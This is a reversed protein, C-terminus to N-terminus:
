AQAQEGGKITLHFVDILRPELSEGDKKLVNGAEDKVDKGNEDTVNEDIVSVKDVAIVYGTLGKATVRFRIFEKYDEIRAAGGVENNHGNFVFCVGLYWGFWVCCLVAGVGGALLAPWVGYWSQWFRPQLFPSSLGDAPATLYPLALMLGGFVLWALPLGLRSNRKLLYEGVLTALGVLLIAAVWTGWAGRRILVFPVAIQLLLHWLGIVLKGLWGFRPAAHLLEAGVKFPLLLLLIITGLLVVTFVIDSILLAALNNQGFSWLGFVVSAVSLGALLWPLAWDFNKIYDTRTKKFLYESYRVGLTAAGVAWILSCLVLLSSVFPSIHTRYPGITLLGGFALVTTALVIGLVKWEPRAKAEADGKKQQIRDEGPRVQVKENARAETAFADQGAPADFIKDSCTFTVVVLALSGLVCLAGIDLDYPWQMVDPLVFYHPKVLKDCEGLSAQWGDSIRLWRWLAFAKVPACATETLRQRITADAFAPNETVSRAAGPLTGGTAAPTPADFNDPLALATPKLPALNETRTLEWREAMVNSIFQQSSQPVSAAFYLIFAILAGALWVYGGGWINWFRFLRAAVARRSTAENPYLVQEQLEDNYTTSPHHFAGGAGSVVSAYSTATHAHAQAKARPLESHAPRSPGWYRAYHHVDGSLELRCEGTELKADGATAFDYTGDDRKKPLFPQKLGLQGIAVAAKYDDETAIKGFITTPSCTALILKKPPVIDGSGDPKPPCLDRFFKEQREDIQGVETDLGWLQWGFPLELAVYSSAQARYFGQLGLQAYLQGAAAVEPPPEPKVPQHFQRRFGDLQDYYDHNGPIGFLPRPPENDSIRGHTKLDEYAWRFPQKVRNALTMYDSAHYATDGGIFLFEGRPLSMTAGQENSQRVRCAAAAPLEHQATPSVWLNSMCLYALSYMARTGDGADSLYDFWFEGDDRAQWAKGAEQALAALRDAPEAPRQKTLWAQLAALRDQASFVHARMWDRPDLKKGYATYLLIGKISGILQRGLLWAVPPLHERKTKDAANPASPRQTQAQTSPTM